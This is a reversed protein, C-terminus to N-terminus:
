RLSVTTQNTESFKYNARGNDNYSIQLIIQITPRAGSNDLRTFIPNSTSVTVRSSTINEIVAARTRQLVGGSVSFETTVGSATFNLINGSSGAAPANITIAGSSSRLENAIQGLALRLNQQVESRAEEKQSGSTINFFINVIVTLFGALIAMYILLELLSFGIQNSKIM